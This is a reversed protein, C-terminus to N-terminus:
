QAKSGVAGVEEMVEVVQDEEGKVSDVMERVGRGETERVVWCSDEGVQDAPGWRQKGAVGQDRVEPDVAEKEGEEEGKAEEEEEGKEREGMEKGEEEWGEEALEVGEQWDWKHQGRGRLPSGQLDPSCGEQEVRWM